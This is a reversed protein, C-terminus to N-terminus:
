VDPFANVFSRMRVSGLPSLGVARGGPKNGTTVALGAQVLSDVFRAVDDRSLVNAMALTDEGVRTSQSEGVFLSLMVDMANDAMVPTLFLTSRRRNLAHIRTAKAELRAADAVGRACGAGPSVDTSRGGNWQLENMVVVGAGELFPPLRGAGRQADLRVDWCSNNCIARMFYSRM